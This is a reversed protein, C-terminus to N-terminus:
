IIKNGCDYIKNNKFLMKKIDTLHIKKGYIMGCYYINNNKFLM